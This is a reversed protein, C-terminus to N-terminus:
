QGPFFLARHVYFKKLMDYINYKSFVLIKIAIKWIENIRQLCNEEKGFAIYRM